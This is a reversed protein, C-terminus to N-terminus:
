ALKLLLNSIYIKLFGSIGLSLTSKKRSAQVTLWPFFMDKEQLFEGCQLAATPETIVQNMLLNCIKASM